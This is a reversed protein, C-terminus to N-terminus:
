RKRRLKRRQEAVVFVAIEELAGQNDTFPMELFRLGVLTNDRSLIERAHRIETRMVFQRPSDPLRFSVYLVRGLKLLRQWKGDLLVGVGRKSLNHVIGIGHEADVPSSCEVDDSELSVECSIGRSVAPVRYDSRRQRNAIERPLAISMGVVRQRDNLRILKTTKLVQSEFAWHSDDQQFYVTIVQGAALEVSGGIRQPKDVSITNDELLLFRVRASNEEGSAGGYHIEASLNRACLDELTNRVRSVDVIDSVPMDKHVKDM